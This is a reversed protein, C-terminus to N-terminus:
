VMEGNLAGMKDGANATPGEPTPPFSAGTPAQGGKLLASIAQLAQPNTTVFEIIAQLPDQPQPVESLVQMEALRSSTRANSRIAAREAKSDAEIQAIALAQKRDKEDRREQYAFYMKGLIVSAGSVAVIGLLETAIM